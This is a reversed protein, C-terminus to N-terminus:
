RSPTSTPTFPNEGGVGLVGVDRALQALAIHWALRANIQQARALALARQATLLDLISGVGERYRGLAVQESQRASALLDEATAVRARATLFDSHSSYVQFSIEQEAARVGEKAADAEAKARALQYQRSFGAWLPVELRLGGSLHDTKRDIGHIWSRDTAASGSLAPLLAARAQRVSALAARARARGAQLDPRSALAKEILDDVPQLLSDPPVEPIAAEFAGVSQAPYGMALALRGRSVRWEGEVSQLDLLAQSYATQAQLLDASTALGVGRKEEAAKLAIAASALAASDAQVMARAGACTYYASVTQLVTNQIVANHTWDMALLAQRSADIAATRGGFDFLLWSLSAGYGYVTFPNYDDPRDPASEQRSRLLSGEASLAPLWVSRAAGYAAAAARANAWAMRTDPNNQLALAIAEALSLDPWRDRVQAEPITAEPLKLAQAASRSPTWPVAPGPSSGAVEQVHPLRSACGALLLVAIGSLFPKM